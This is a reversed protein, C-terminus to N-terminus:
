DTGGEFQCDMCMLRRSEDEMEQCGDNEICDLVEIITKWSKKKWM